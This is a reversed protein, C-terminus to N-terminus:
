VHARGIEGDVTWTPSVEVKGTLNLYEVKNSSTQPTTYTAGWYQQLLEAPVAAAAGFKNDAVGMNLHFENGDYRYAVDGYFRRVDSQSFNRFGDDHIGELAGYVAYNDVQKGWQASGQIRGFSGGMLSLEAGHYNFGDKMQIDVAGGLANM